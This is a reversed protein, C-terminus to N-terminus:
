TSHYRLVRLQSSALQTFRYLVSITASLTIRRPDAPPVEESDYEAGFKSSDAGASGACVRLDFGFASSSILM